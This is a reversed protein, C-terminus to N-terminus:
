SSSRSTAPSERFHCPPLSFLPINKKVKIFFQQWRRSPQFPFDLTYDGRQNALREMLPRLATPMPISFARDEGGKPHPFTIKNEQLDVCDLPIRTERLRCGTNLSIEFSVQMWEPEDLLAQRIEAIDEDTLEPKQAPKDRRIKISTLPNADAYGMRVAEGMILSLIKLELIATNRGVTKGTRKKFHIRWEVYEIGLRYTIQRPTHIRERQMWLALWKWGDEYRTLTKESQCHRAFFKPVWSDWAAGNVVPAGRFEKARIRRSPNQSQDHRQPRREEARHIQRSKGLAGGSIKNREIM